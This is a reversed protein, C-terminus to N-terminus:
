SLLLRTHKRWLGTVIEGDINVAIMGCKGSKKYLYSFPKSGDLASCEATRKVM